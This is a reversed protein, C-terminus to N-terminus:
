KPLRYQVTVGGFIANVKWPVTSVIDTLGLQYTISPVVTLADNVALDYRAGISLAAFLSAKDPLDGSQQARTRSGNEFTYDPDSPEVLTQQQEYTAALPMGVTFGGTVFLQAILPVAVYPQLAVMGYSLDITHEVVGDTVTSGSIINGVVEDQTLTGPLAQYSLNVGLRLTNSFISTRTDLEAGIGIGYGLGTGGDFEVCCNPVGPLQTFQANHITPGAFLGGQLLVNTHEAQAEAQVHVLALAALAILQRRM